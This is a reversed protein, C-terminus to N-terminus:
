RSRRLGIPYEGLQAAVARPEGDVIRGGTVGPELPDGRDPGVEDLEVAASIVPLRWLRSCIETM